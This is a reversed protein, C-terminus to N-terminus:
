VVSKLFPAKRTSKSLQRGSETREVKTTVSKSEDVLTGLNSDSLKWDILLSSFNDFNRGEADSVGVSIDLPLYCHAPVQIFIFGPLIM